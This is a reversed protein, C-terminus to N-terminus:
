STVMGYLYAYSRADVNSELGLGIWNLQNKWDSMGEIIHGDRCGAYDGGRVTSSGGYWRFHLFNATDNPNFIEIYGNSTDRNEWRGTDYHGVMHTDYMASSQNQWDAGRKTTSYWGHEILDFNGTNSGGHGFHVLPKAATESTNACKVCYSIRLYEYDSWPGDFEAWYTNTTSSSLDVAEIFSYGTGTVESSQSASSGLLGHVLSM